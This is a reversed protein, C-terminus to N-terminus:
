RLRFRLCNTALAQLQTLSLSSRNPVPTTTFYLNHYGASLGTTKITYTYTSVGDFTFTYAPNSGGPAGPGPDILRDVTLATLTQAPLKVTTGAADCTRISVQYASGIRKADDPNYNLCFRIGVNITRPATQFTNGALDTALVTLNKQGATTTPVTATGVTTGTTSGIVTTGDMLQCSRLGSGVDGCSFRATVLEGFNYVGDGNPAPVADTVSLLTATPNVKDIQVARTETKENGATDTVVVTVNVTGFTGAPVSATVTTSSANVVVPATCTTGICTSTRISAVNSAADTASVNLTVDSNRWGSTPPTITVTPATRDIRVTASASTTTNGVRDTATATITTVGEVDITATGTGNGGLTVPACSGAVGATVATLCVTQLGSGQDSAAVDVVVPNKTWTTTRPTVTVTPAAKDIKYVGGASGVNGVQDTARARVTRDVLGGAPADITLSQITAPSCADDICLSAVGSGGTDTAAVTVSVGTASWDANPPTLTVLPQVNDVRQTATRESKNGANDFARAFVQQGDLDITTRYEGNVLTVAECAGTGIAVCVSALGSRADSSAVVVEVPGRRFLLDNPTISLVPADRDIRVEAAESTTTNGVKDVATATVTTVGDATVTGTATGDGGLTVATCGSGTNLCVSELGSGQDSAAVTVIV